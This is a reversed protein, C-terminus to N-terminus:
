RWIKNLSVDLIRQARSAFSWEKARLSASQIMEDRADRRSLCDEIAAALSIPDDAKFFFGQDEKVWYRLAPIDSLVMPRQAAMYEGLKVPSTWRASPHNRSPPLLLVDAEWLYEPVRVHDVHGHFVVN